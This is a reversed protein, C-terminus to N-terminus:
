AARGISAKEVCDYAIPVILDVISARRIMMAEEGFHKVTDLSISFCDEVNQKSPKARLGQLLGQDDVASVIMLRELTRRFDRFEPPRERELEKSVVYLANLVSVTSQLSVGGLRAVVDQIRFTRM